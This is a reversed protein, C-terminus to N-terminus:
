LLNLNRNLKCTYRVIISDIGNKLVQFDEKDNQQAIKYEEYEEHHSKYVKSDEDNSVSFSSRLRQWSWGRM